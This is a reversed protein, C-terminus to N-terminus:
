LIKKTIPRVIDLIGETGKALYVFINFGLLGLMIFIVLITKWDFSTSSLNSAVSPAPTNLVNPNMSNTDM